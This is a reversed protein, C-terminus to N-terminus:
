DGARCGRILEAQPPDTERRPTCPDQGGTAAEARASSGEGRAFSALHWGPGSHCGALGSCPSPSGGAPARRITRGSTGVAGCLPEARPGKLARLAHSWCAGGVPPLSWAGGARGEDLSRGGLPPFCRARILWAGRLGRGPASAGGLPTGPFARGAVPGRGGAPPVRRASRDGGLARRSGRGSAASGRGSAAAGPRACARLGGPPTALGARGRGERPGRGAPRGSRRAAADGGGM